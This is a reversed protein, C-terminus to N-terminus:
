SDSPLAAPSCSAESARVRVERPNELSKLGVESLKAMARHVARERGSLAIKRSVVRPAFRRMARKPSVADRPGRGWPRQEHSQRGVLASEERGRPIEM